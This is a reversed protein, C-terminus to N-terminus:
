AAQRCHSCCVPPCCSCVLVVRRRTGAIGPARSQDPPKRSHPYEISPRAVGKYWRSWAGRRPCRGREGGGWILGGARGRQRQAHRMSRQIWIDENVAMCNFTTPARGEGADAYRRKEEDGPGVKVRRTVVRWLECLTTSYGRARLEEVKNM